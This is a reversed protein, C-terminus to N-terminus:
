FRSRWGVFWSKDKPNFTVSLGDKTPLGLAKSM